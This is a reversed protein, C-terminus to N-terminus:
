PNRDTQGRLRRPSYYEADWSLKATGITPYLTTYSRFRSFFLSRAHGQSILTDYPRRLSPQSQHTNKTSYPFNLGDLPADLEIEYSVNSQAKTVFLLHPHGRVMVTAYFYGAGILKADFTIKDYRRFGFKQNFIAGDRVIVRPKSNGRRITVEKIVPTAHIEGLSSSRVFASNRRHATGSRM